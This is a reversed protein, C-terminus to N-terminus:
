EKVHGVEDGCELEIAGEIVKEKQMQGWKAWLDIREKTNLRLYALFEAKWEEYKRGEEGFTM